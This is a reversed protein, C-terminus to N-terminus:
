QLGVRQLYKARYLDAINQNSIIVCIAPKIKKFLISGVDKLLGNGVHIDYSTHPLTVSIVVM